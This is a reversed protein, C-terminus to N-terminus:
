WMFNIKKRKSQVKWIVTELNNLFTHFDGEPSRYICVVIFKYELLEIVTIEFDKEKSIGQFYNVEITQLYKREYICSGEHENSIKTFNSVLKYHDIDLLKIQEEKLWQETFCVM